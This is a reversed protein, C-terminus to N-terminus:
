VGERDRRALGRRDGFGAELDQGRRSWVGAAESDGGAAAMGALYSAISGLSIDPGALTAFRDDFPALAETLVALAEAHRLRAAADALFACALLWGSDQPVHALDDAICWELESTARGVDGIAAAQSAVVARLGIAGPWMAIAAAALDVVEAHRGQALRVLGLHYGFTQIADPAPDDSWEALAENSLREADDLRLALLADHAEVVKARWSLFVGGTQGAIERIRAGARTFGHRDGLEHCDGRLYDLASVELWIDGTARAIAEVRRAFAVRATTDAPRWFRVRSAPLAAAVVADAGDSDALALADRALAQRRERQEPLYLALALEGGVRVRLENDDRLGDYAEALAAVRVDDAIWASVGRGGLTTGLAARAMAVRDRARRALTIAHLAAERGRAADGARARATALDLILAGRERDNGTDGDADLAQEFHRAADEYALQQMALRGASVSWASARARYADGADRWHRALEAAHPLTAAREAYQAEMAEALRRHIAARRPAALASYLTRQVIGHRFAVRNAAGDVSASLGAAVAEDLAALADDEDLRTALAITDLDFEVGAASATTLLEQTPSALQHVRTLLVDRISRPVAGHEAIPYARVVETLLFPNGGTARHLEELAGSSLTVGEAAALAATAGLDFEGLAVSELLDERQLRALVDALVGGTTGLSRVTALVLVPRDRLQRVLYGTLLAAARSAWQLDDLVLVVPASNSLVRLWSVVAEFLRHQEASPDSSAWIAPGVPLHPTLTPILQVLAGADDGLAAALSDLPVRRAFDGLAEVYAQYPVDLHEDHSGYLVTAGHASADSAARAALWTKGIAAEGTITVLRAGDLRDLRDAILTREEDRGIFRSADHRALASPLAAVRVSTTPLDVVHPAALVPDHDLIRRELDSLEPTPELGLERALVARARRQVDLADAQRGSRYLATALQVAFRERLPHANTLATLTDVVGAHQGLALRIDFLREYAFLRLEDLRTATARAWELHAFEELANGRWLALADTLARETAATDGEIRALEEFRYADVATADVALAYGGPESVLLGPGGPLLQRLKAVYTRLTAPSHHQWDDEWLDDALREPPVPQGPELALRAILARRRRGAVVVQRGGVAVALSGLVSIDAGKVGARVVVVPVTDARTAAAGAPSTFLAHGVSCRRLLPGNRM